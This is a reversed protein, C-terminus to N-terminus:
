DANGDRDSSDREVFVLKDNDFRALGPFTFHSGFVLANKKKIRENILNLSETMQEPYSDFRSYWDPHDVQIVHRYGDAIHVLTEGESEIEVAFHDPRHGPTFIMKFGPLFEEEEIVLQIRNNLSPLKNAGYDERYAAGKAVFDPDLFKLFVTKFNDIMGKRIMDNTWLDYAPKPFFIKTNPFNDLGGIHDFDSHTIILYDIEEPKLKAESMSELLENMGTGCDILTKHAQTQVFLINFGIKTNFDEYGHSQMAALLDAEPVQGLEQRIDITQANDQLSILNLAGLKFHHAPM